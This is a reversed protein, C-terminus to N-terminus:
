WDTAPQHYWQRLIAAGTLNTASFILIGLLTSALVSAFLLDTKLQQATYMIIYGLGHHQTGYGAFFEGVISGIVAVGSATRAGIIIHPIAHPIRLKALLQLRTAQNLRFLDILDADIQILGATANTLVPFLSIIFSVLVVSHFGTGFWIVILPAIAIIPVTQLFIAYPYVSSRIIRSQSFVCALLTGVILSLGFGCLAEAGTLMTARALDGGRATAAHWVDLPGPLLFKKIQFVRTALHWGATVLALLGLPPGVHWIVTKLRRNM